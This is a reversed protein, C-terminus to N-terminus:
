EHEPSLRAHAADGLKLAEELHTKAAELEGAAIESEIDLMKRVLAILDKRYNEALKSKAADDPAHKLVDAPLPQGKANVAGRQVDNVLRLNEERKAADGIQERLQEISRGILKMSGGVSMREGRAGREGEPQVRPSPEKPQPQAPAGAPQLAALSLVFASAAVMRFTLAVM